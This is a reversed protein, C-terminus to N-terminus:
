ILNFIFAGAISAGIGIIFSILISLLYSSLKQWWKLKLEPVITSNLCTTCQVIMGFRLGTVDLIIHCKPNPCDLELKNVESVTVISSDIISPAINTM